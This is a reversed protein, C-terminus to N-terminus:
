AAILATHRKERFDIKEAKMLTQCAENVERTIVDRDIEGLVGNMWIDTRFYYERALMWMNYYAM